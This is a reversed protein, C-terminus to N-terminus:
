KQTEIAFFEAAIILADRFTKNDRAHTILMASLDTTSGKSYFGAACRHPQMFMQICADSPQNFHKKKM